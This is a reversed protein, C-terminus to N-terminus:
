VFYWPDITTEPISYKCSMRRNLERRGINPEERQISRMDEWVRVILGPARNRKGLRSNRKRIPKCYSSARKIDQQEKELESLPAKQMLVSPDEKLISPKEVVLDSRWAMGFNKRCSLSQRIHNAVQNHALFGRSSGPCRWPKNPSKPPQRFLAVFAYM